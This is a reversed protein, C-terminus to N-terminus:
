HLTKPHCVYILWTKCNNQSGLSIYLQLADDIFNAEVTKHSDGMNIYYLTDCVNSLTHEILWIKNLKAIFFSFVNDDSSFAKRTSLLKFCHNSRVLITMWPSHLIYKSSAIIPCIMARWLRYDVILVYLFHYIYRISEWVQTVHKSHLSAFDSIICLIVATFM